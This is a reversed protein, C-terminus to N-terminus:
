GYTQLYKLLKVAYGCIRKVTFGYLEEVSERIPPYM